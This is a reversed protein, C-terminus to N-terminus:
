NLAATISYAAGKHWAGREGDNSEDDQTSSLKVESPESAELSSGHGRHIQGVVNREAADDADWQQDPQEGTIAEAAGEPLFFQQSRGEEDGGRDGISNVTVQGAFTSLDGGDSHQEVRQGVLQKNGSSEHRQNLEIGAQDWRPHSNYDDPTFEQNAPQARYRSRFTKGDLGTVQAFEFHEHLDDGHYPHNKGVAPFLPRNVAM